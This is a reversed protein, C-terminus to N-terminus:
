SQAPGDKTHSVRHRHNRDQRDRRATGDMRRDTRAQDIQEWGAEKSCRADGTKQSTPPSYRFGIRGARGENAQM